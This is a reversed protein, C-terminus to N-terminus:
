SIDSPEGQGPKSKWGNARANALYPASQRKLVIGEGGRRITQQYYSQVQAVTRLSRRRLQRVWRLRRGGLLGQLRAVRERHPTADYGSNYDVLPLADWVYFRSTHAEGKGGIDELTTALCGSSVEGDLVWGRLGLTALEELIPRCQATYDTGRRGYARCTGDDAIVMAMRVGDVKPEATLPLLSADSPWTLLLQM